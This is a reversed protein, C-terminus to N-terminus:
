LLEISSLTASGKRTHTAYNMNLEEIMSSVITAKLFGERGEACTHVAFGVRGECHALLLRRPQRALERGRMDTM